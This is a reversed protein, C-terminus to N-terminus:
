KFYVTSIIALVKCGEDLEDLVLGRNTIGLGNQSLILHIFATQLVNVRFLWNVGLTEIKEKQQPSTRWVVTLCTLFESQFILLSYAPFRSDKM